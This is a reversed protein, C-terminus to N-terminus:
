GQGGIDLEFANDADLHDILDQDQGSGGHIAKAQDFMTKVGALDLIQNAMMGCQVFGIWRHLKTEPWDNAHEEIKSCMWLLHKPRLAKPLDPETMGSKEMLGRCQKAMAVILVGPTEM